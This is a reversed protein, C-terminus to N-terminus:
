LEKLVNAIIKHQIQKRSRAVNVSRKVNARCILGCRM